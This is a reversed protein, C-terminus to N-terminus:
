KDQLKSPDIKKLANEAAARVEASASARRPLIIPVAAKAQPGIEALRNLALVQVQANEEYRIVAILIPVLNPAAANKDILWLADATTLCVPRYENWALSDALSRSFENPTSAKLPSPVEDDRLAPKWKKLEAVFAPVADKADSGLQGLSTAVAIKLQSSEPISEDQFAKVLNPVATKAKPGMRGLLEVAEKRDAFSAKPNSAVEAFVKVKDEPEKEKDKKAQSTDKGDQKAKDNTPSNGTCGTVCVCAGLILVLALLLRNM